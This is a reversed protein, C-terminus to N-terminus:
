RKGARQDTLPAPEGRAEGQAVAVDLLQEKCATDVDGMLGDALPTELKALGIGIPQLTSAGLWPVLPMPLLHKECDM